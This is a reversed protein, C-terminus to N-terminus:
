VKRFYVMYGLVMSLLVSMVTLAQFLTTVANSSGSRSALEVDVHTKLENFDQTTPYAKAQLLLAEDRSKLAEKLRRHDETRLEAMREMHMKIVMEIFERLAVHDNM